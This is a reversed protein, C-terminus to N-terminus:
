WPFCTVSVRCAMCSYFRPGISGHCGLPASTGCAQSRASLAHERKGSGNIDRDHVCPVRTHEPVAAPHLIAQLPPLCSCAM